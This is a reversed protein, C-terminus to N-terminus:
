YCVLSSYILLCEEAQDAGFDHNQHLGLQLIGVSKYNKPKNNFCEEVQIADSISGSM